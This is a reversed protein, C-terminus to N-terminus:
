FEIGFKVSFGGINMDEYYSSGGYSFRVTAMQFEYGTSVLLAVKDTFGFRCGFMPELMFGSGDGITYGIKADFFPTIKSNIFNVRINGFVPIYLDDDIIKFGTGGGVFFHSNVQGGHSTLVSFIEFEGFSYGTEVFGRYGTAISPRDEDHSNSENKPAGSNTNSFQAFTVNCSLIAAVLLLTKFVKM